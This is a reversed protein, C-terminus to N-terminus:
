SLFFSTVLQCIIYMGTYTYKCVPWTLNYNDLNKTNGSEM